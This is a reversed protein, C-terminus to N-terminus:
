AARRGDASVCVRTSSNSAPPFQRLVAGTKGDLTLQAFHLVKRRSSSGTLPNGYFVEFSDSAKVQRQFDVDYSFIRTFEAIIYDPIKNDKATGYLSSGVKAQTRFNNIQAYQSKTGARTGEIAAQFRGDEDAEVTLDPPCTVVIQRASATGPRM